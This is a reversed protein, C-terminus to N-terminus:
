SSLVTYYISESELILMQFEIGTFSLLVHDSAPFSSCETNRPRLFSGEITLRISNYEESQYEWQPNEINRALRRALLSLCDQRYVQMCFYLGAEFELEFHQSLCSVCFFRKGFSPPSSDVPVPGCVICDLRSLWTLTKCKSRPLHPVAQRLCRRARPPGTLLSVINLSVDKCSSCSLKPAMSASKLFEYFFRDHLIHPPSSSLSTADPCRNAVHDENFSAKTLYHELWDSRNRAEVDASLM